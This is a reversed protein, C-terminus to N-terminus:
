HSVIVFVFRSLIGEVIVLGTRSVEVRDCLEDYVGNEKTKADETAISHAYAAPVTISQKFSPKTVQVATVTINEDGCKVVTVLFYGRGPLRKGKAALISSRSFPCGCSSTVCGLVIDFFAFCGV